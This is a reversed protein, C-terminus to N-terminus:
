RQALAPALKGLAYPLGIDLDEDCLRTEGIFLQPTSVPLQNKVAFRLHEDLQLRSKDDKVCAELGPWRAKILTLVGEDGERGKAAAMLEDQQDYAWELVQLARQEDCLVARAVTCAGPHLPTTLNWNCESDLPFLVLTTDLQDLIGDAALRQHFAKCTPCLPDIVMIVPQKAGAATFHLLANKPDESSVLKGCGGVQKAYSPVTQYYVGAPVMTFLGLGLLWLAMLTTTGLPRAGRPDAM